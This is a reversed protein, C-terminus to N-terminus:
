HGLHTVAGAHVLGSNHRTQHVALEPEKELLTVLAGPAAALLRRAAAVGVIGRDV